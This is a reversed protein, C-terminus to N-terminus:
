MSMRAKDAAVYAAEFKDWWADIRKKAEALTVYRGRRLKDWGYVVYSHDSPLHGGTPNEVVVTFHRYHVHVPVQLKAM